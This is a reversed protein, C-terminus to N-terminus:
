FKSFATRLTPANTVTVNSVRDLLDQAVRSTSNFSRRDSTCSRDSRKKKPLPFNSKQYMGRTCSRTKQCAWRSAGGICSGKKNEQTALRDYACILVEQSTKNQKKPKGILRVDYLNANRRLKRTKKPKQSASRDFTVEQNKQSALPDFRGIPM